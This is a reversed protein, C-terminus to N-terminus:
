VGSQQLSLDGQPHPYYTVPSGIWEQPTEAPLAGAPHPGGLLVAVGVGLLLGGLLGAALVLLARPGVPYDEARAQGVLTLLSSRTDTQLAAQALALKQDAQRVLETHHNVQAVLAAYPARLRAVEALRNKVEAIQQQLMKQKAQALQLEVELGALATDLERHLHNRIEREADLAAQVRPHERTLAGQLRASQLQADLLGEKLRRLAPQSELLRNPTALLRQPEAKVQQLLQHLAALERRQQMVQRLENELQNLRQRLSSDGGAQDLLRLEALDGGVQKEMQALQDLHRQLQQRALQASTRLEAVVSQMRQQRLQHLAHQLELAIAQALRAARQPSGQRVRLLLIETKGFEAGKPPVLEVQQRLRQVDKGTPWSAAAPKEPGVRKLAGVLVEPSLALQLVTEQTVKMQELDRFRGLKEQQLTVEDRLMLTQRAEWQRTRFMVWAAAALTGLLVSAAILRRRRLCLAWLEQFHIGQPNM